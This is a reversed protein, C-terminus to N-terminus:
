YVVPNLHFVVCFPNVTLTTHVVLAMSANLPRTGKSTANLIEYFIEIKENTINLNCVHKTIPYRM